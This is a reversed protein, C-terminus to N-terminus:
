AFPGIESTVSKIPLTYIFIHRTRKTRVRKQARRDDDDADNWM